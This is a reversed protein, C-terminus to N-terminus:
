LIKQFCISDDIGVYQGYNPTVMFGNKKYLAVAEPYQHGTELICSSYNEEKAWSQLENLVKTAIGKGRAEPNVYMRKIEAVATDYYKFAGCGLPTENEYVVVANKISDTTNFQAFFVHEDGDRTEIDKDLLQILQIFDPNDPTTRVIQIM